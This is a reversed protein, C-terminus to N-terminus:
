VFEGPRRFKKRKKVRAVKVGSQRVSQGEVKREPFRQSLCFREPDEDEDDAEDLPSGPRKLSESM